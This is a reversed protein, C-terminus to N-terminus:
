GNSNRGDLYDNLQKWESTIVIGAQTLEALMQNSGTTDRTSKYLAILEHHLDPRDPDSLIANELVKKAEELQSYEIHDRALILPDYSNGQKKKAQQILRNTGLLGRTFITYRNGSLVSPDPHDSKLYNKLESFQDPSLRSKAGIVVRWSIAQGRGNLIVLFDIIAAFLQSNLENYFCYYIRQIHVILSKPQRAIRFVLKELFGEYLFADPYWLLGIDQLSFFRILGSSERENNDDCTILSIGNNM